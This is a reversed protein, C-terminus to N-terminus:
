LPAREFCRAEKAAAILREGPTKAPEGLRYASNLTTIVGDADPGSVVRSTHIFHGEPFRGKTDGYINGRIVNRDRWWNEIRGHIEM